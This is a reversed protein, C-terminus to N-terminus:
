DPPTTTTAGHLVLRLEPTKVEGSHEVKDKFMGLHRGIDVLRVAQLAQHVTQQSRVAVGVLHTVDVDV